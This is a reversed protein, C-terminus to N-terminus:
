SRAKDLADLTLQEAARRKESEMELLSDQLAQSTETLVDRVVNLYEAVQQWMMEETNNPKQSDVFYEL